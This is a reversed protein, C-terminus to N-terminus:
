NLYIVNLGTITHKALKVSSFMGKGITREIVYTGLKPKYNTKIQENHNSYSIHTSCFDFEKKM